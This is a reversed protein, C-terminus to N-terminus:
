AADNLEYPMVWCKWPARRVWWLWGWVQKRRRALRRGYEWRQGLSPRVSNDAGCRRCIITETYHASLTTGLSEQVHANCRWCYAILVGDVRDTVRRM